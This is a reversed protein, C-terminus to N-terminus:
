HIELKEAWVVECAGDGTDLRTLSSAWAWGDPAQIQVLDGEITVVDGKHARLLAARVGADAPIIHMNASFSEIDDQEIPADHESWTYFRSMQAISIHDLVASDSMPGWGLALDVPALQSERDSWYRTASLVRAEIHFHALPTIDYNGHTHHPAGPAVASQLPTAPAIRGPPHRRECGAAALLVLLALPAIFRHFSKRM